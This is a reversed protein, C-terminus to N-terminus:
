IAVVPPDIVVVGSNNNNRNRCIGILIIQHKEFIHTEAKLKPPQAGRKQWYTEAGCYKKGNTMPVHLM